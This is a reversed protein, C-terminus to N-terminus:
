LYCAITEERTLLHARLHKRHHRYACYLRHWGDIIVIPPVDVEDFTGLILSKDPKYHNDTLYDTLGVLSTKALPPTVHAALFKESWPYVLISCNTRRNEIIWEAKTVNVRVSNYRFADYAMIDTQINKKM